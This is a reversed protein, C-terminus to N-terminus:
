VARVPAGVKARLYGRLRSSTRALKLRAIFRYLFPVVIRGLFFLFRVFCRM